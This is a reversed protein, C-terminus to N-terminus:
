QNIEGTSKQDNYAVALVLNPSLNHRRSFQWAARAVTYLTPDNAEFALAIFRLEPIEQLNARADDLAKRLAQNELALAQAAKKERRTARHADIQMTMGYLMAATLILGLIPLLAALLRQRRQCRPCYYVGLSVKIGLGLAMCRSCLPRGCIHCGHM